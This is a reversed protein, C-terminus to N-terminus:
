IREVKALALLRAWEKIEKDIQESFQAPTMHKPEISIQLMRQITDPEALVDRTAEYLKTVIDQPTGRPALLAVWTGSEFDPTGLEKFTPVDPLLPSRETGTVALARLQGARVFPPVATLAGFAVQVHGGVIAQIAGSGGSFPVPTLELKFTRKLLEGQLFQPTGIGSNAIAYKGPNSQIVKVFEAFTKAPVSPHVIVASPTVGLMTIPEFGKPDYPIKKYLSPNIAFASAAMLLTYGDPTARSVAGIGLNSGAGAQNEIVFAQGLRDAVLQAWLRAATDTVGGASFPVIVRVAHNPYTAQALTRGPQVSLTALGALLSRRSMNFMTLLIRQLQTLHTQYLHKHHFGNPLEFSLRSLISPDLM